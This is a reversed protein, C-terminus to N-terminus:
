TIYSPLKLDEDSNNPRGSFQASKFGALDLSATACYANTGITIATTPAAREEVIKVLLPRACSTCTGVDADSDVPSMARVTFREAIEFSVAMAENEYRM